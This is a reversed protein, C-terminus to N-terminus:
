MRVKVVIKRHKCPAGETKNPAHAGCNPYFIAFEGKKVVVKSMGPSQFLVYDDAVNFDADNAHETDYLYGIMEDGDVPVHIDFYRRHIELKADPDWTNLTVDMVNAYIDDGDIENRGLPLAALDHSRLFEIAKAFRPHLHAHKESDALSGHAM